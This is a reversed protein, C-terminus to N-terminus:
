KTIIGRRVEQMQVGCCVKKYALNPNVEIEKGCSNCRYVSKKDKMDVKGSSAIIM